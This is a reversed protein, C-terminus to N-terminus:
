RQVSKSGPLILLDADPVPGSKWYTFEVQPHARLPDFDTHNSIRPLAPVVVRLAAARPSAPTSRTTTGAS